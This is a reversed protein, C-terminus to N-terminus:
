GLPQSDVPIVNGTRVRESGSRGVFSLCRLWDVAAPFLRGLTAMEHAPDSLYYLVGFRRTLTEECSRSGELEL